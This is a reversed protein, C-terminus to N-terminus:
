KKRLLKDEIKSVLMVEDANYSNAPIELLDLNYGNEFEVSGAYKEKVKSKKMERWFYQICDITAVYKAKRPTKVKCRWIQLETFTNRSLKYYFSLASSLRSFVYLPTGSQPSSVYENEKYETRFSEPFCDNLCVSIKKGNKVQVVKYFYNVKSM